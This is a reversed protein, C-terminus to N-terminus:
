LMELQIQLISQHDLLIRSQLMNSMENFKWSFLKIRFLFFMSFSSKWNSGRRFLESLLWFLLNAKITSGLSKINKVAAHYELQVESVIKELFEMTFYHMCINGWNFLLNSDDDKLKALEETLESYEIVQTHGDCNVFVGVKEGPDNKAVVRAGTFTM